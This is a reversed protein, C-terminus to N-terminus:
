LHTGGSGPVLCSRLGESTWSAKTTSGGGESRGVGGGSDLGRGGAVAELSFAFPMGLHVQCSSGLRV